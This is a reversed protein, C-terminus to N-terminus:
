GRGIGSDVGKKAQGNKRSVKVAPRPRWQGCACCKMAGTPTLRHPTRDRCSQCFLPTTM